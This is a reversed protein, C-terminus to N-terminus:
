KGALGSRISRHIEKLRNTDGMNTEIWKRTVGYERALAATAEQYTDFRGHDGTWYKKERRPDYFQLDDSMELPKWDASGTMTVPKRSSAALADALAGHIDSLSNSTGMHGTIWEESQGYQDSLDALAEARTKFFRNKKTQYAFPRAEDYFVPDGPDVAPQDKQGAEIGKRGELAAMLRSHIAALDNEGGMNAEIWDNSRGYFKALADVAEQLTTHRSNRFAWYRKPRRPDYFSIDRIGALKRKDISVISITEQESTRPKEPLVEPGRSPPVKRPPATTKSPPRKKAVGSKEPPLSAVPTAAGEREIRDVIEKAYRVEVTKTGNLIFHVYKESTWVRDSIEVTGDKLIIRDGLAGVPMSVAMLALLILYANHFLIPM